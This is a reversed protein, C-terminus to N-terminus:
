RASPQSRLSKFVSSRRKRVSISAVFAENRKTASTDIVYIGVGSASETMRHALVRSSPVHDMFFGRTVKQDSHLESRGALAIGVGLTRVGKRVFWALASRCAAYDWGHRGVTDEELGVLIGTEPHLTTWHPSKM